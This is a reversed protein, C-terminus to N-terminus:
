RIEKKTEEEEERKLEKMFGAILIGVPFSFFPLITLTTITGMLKGAFSIPLLQQYEVFTLKLITKWMVYPISSYMQPQLPNEIYYSLSSFIFLAFAFLILATILREKSSIIVNGFMQLSRSYRVLKAVRLLRILRLVRLFRLDITIFTLYFPLVALLDAMVLPTKACKIRGYLPHSYKAALSCSWIRVIYELSFVSVSMLELFYLPKKWDHQINGVSAITIAMINLIIVIQLFNNIWVATSDDEDVVFLIEYCRKKVNM